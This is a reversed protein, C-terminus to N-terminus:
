LARLVDALERANSATRSAARAEEPRLGWLVGVDLTGAARATELDVASDGVFAVVRGDLEAEIRRLIGPDPKLSGVDDPGLVLDFTGPFLAAVIPRAFSGPKNTAVALRARARLEPLLEVLGPFPRTRSTLDREYHHRFRQLLEPAGAADQGHHALAREVLKLAGNGVFTRVLEEDIPGLGQDALGANLGVAIDGVSDILTGDLDFAFIKM